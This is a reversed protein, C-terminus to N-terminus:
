VNPGHPGIFYMTKFTLDWITVYESTQLKIARECVMSAVLGAVPKTRNLKIVAVCIPPPLINSGLCDRRKCRGM